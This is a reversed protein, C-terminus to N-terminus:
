KHDTNQLNTFYHFMKHRQYEEVISDFGRYEEYDMCPEKSQGKIAKMANRLDQVYEEFTGNFGSTLKVLLPHDMSDITNKSLHKKAIIKFMSIRIYAMDESTQKILSKSYAFQRNYKIVKKLMASCPTFLLGTLLIFKNM